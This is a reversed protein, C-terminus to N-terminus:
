MSGESQQWSSLTKYVVWALSASNSNSMPTWPMPDGFNGKFCKGSLTHKLLMSSLGGQDKWTKPLEM